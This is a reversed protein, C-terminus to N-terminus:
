WFITETVTKKSLSAGWNPRRGGDFHLPCLILNSFFILVFIGIVHKRKLSKLLELFVFFFLPVLFLNLRSRGLSHTDHMMFSASLGILLLLCTIALFKEKKWIVFVGCVSILLFIGMQEFLAQGIVGYYSLQFLQNWHMHYSAWTFLHIKFFLFTLVPTTALLLGGFERLIVRPFRNVSRLQRWKFIIRMGYVIIIFPLVAESFFGCLIFAFWYPEKMLEKFPLILFTRINFLVITMLLIAPMEISFLNSHFYMIPITTLILAAGISAWRCQHNKNLHHFLYWSLLVTSLFPIIRYLAIDQFPNLSIFVVNLWKQFFPYRVFMQLLHSSAELTFLYFHSLTVTLIAMLTMCIYFTFMSSVTTLRKKLLYMCALILILSVGILNFYPELTIYFIKFLDYTKLASNFHFIENSHSVIGSSLHRYHLAVLCLFLLLFSDRHYKGQPWQIFTMLQKAWFIGLVFITTVIIVQQIPHDFLLWYPPFLFSLHFIILFICGVIEKKIVIRQNIFLIVTMCVLLSRVGFFPFLFFLIIIALYLWRRIVPNKEIVENM